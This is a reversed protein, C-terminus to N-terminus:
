CTVFSMGPAIYGITGKVGISSTTNSDGTSQSRSDLYLKAIGFDGLRANMDDDLLINSPKV